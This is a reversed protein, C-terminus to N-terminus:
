FLKSFNEKFFYNSEIQQNESSKILFAILIINGSMNFVKLKVFLPIIKKTTKKNPINNPCM